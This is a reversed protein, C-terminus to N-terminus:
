LPRVSTRNWGPADCNLAPLSPAWNTEYASPKLRNSEARRLWSAPRASVTRAGTQLVSSRPAAGRAPVVDRCETEPSVVLRGLQSPPNSKWMGSWNGASSSLPRVQSNILTAQPPALAPLWEFCALRPLDAPRWFRVAYSRCRGGTGVISGRALLRVRRIAFGSQSPAIGPRIELFPHPPNARCASAGPSWM